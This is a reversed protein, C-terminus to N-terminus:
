KTQRQDLQHLVLPEKDNDDDQISKQNFKHHIVLLLGVFFGMGIRQLLEHQDRAFFLQILSQCLPRRRPDNNM